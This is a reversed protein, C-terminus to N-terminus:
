SQFSGPPGSRLYEDVTQKPNPEKLTMEVLAVFNKHNRGEAGAFGKRWAIVTKSTVEQAGMGPWSNAARAVMAAAIDLEDGLKVLVDLFVSALM